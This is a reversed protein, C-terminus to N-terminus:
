WRTALRRRAVTSRWTPGATQQRKYVVREVQASVSASGRSPASLDINAHGLGAAIIPPRVVPRVSQDSEKRRSGTRPTRAHRVEEQERGDAERGLDDIPRDSHGVPKDGRRDKQAESYRRRCRAGTHVGGLYERGASPTIASATQSGRCAGRRSARVQPSSRRRAQHM